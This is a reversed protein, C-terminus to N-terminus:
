GSPWKRGIKQEVVVARTDDFWIDIAKFLDRQIARSWEEITAELAEANAREFAPRDLRERNKDWLYDVAMGGGIGVVLGVLSGLGPEILSGAALGIIQPQMSGVVRVAVKALAASASRELAPRVSAFILASLSASGTGEVVARFAEDDVAYRPAKWQQADWGLHVELKEVAGFTELHRTHRRLFEQVRDDMRTLVLLYKLHAEALIQSIGVEIGPDRLEPKLVIRQYNQVLYAEVENRSAEFIGQVNNPGIAKLGGLSAEKLLAWSRGWGFYWDAYQSISAHHDAFTSSLLANIRRSTNAKISEREQDLFLLAENIFRSLEDETTLLLHVHGGVDRYRLVVPTSFSATVGTRVVSDDRHVAARHLARRESSEILGPVLWALVVAVLVFLAAWSFRDAIRVYFPRQYAGYKGPITPAPTSASQRSAVFDPAAVDVSRRNGSAVLLNFRPRGSM